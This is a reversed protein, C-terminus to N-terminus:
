GQVGIDFHFVEERTGLKDYLAVAPGDPPDAQVFIAWAGKDRAIPKLAEILGTAVGRRRFEERVALDYIYIESREAEFKVLEYAALAGAMDSGIWATLAIFKGDSLIRELYAPQPPAGHYGEEGFVEAFLRNAAEMADTEGPGLRRIDIVRDKSRGLNGQRHM